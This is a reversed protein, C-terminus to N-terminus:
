GWDANPTPLRAGVRQRWDRLLAHMQRVRAPETAALNRQQGPDDGLHYLERRGDEFFEILQFDGVRVSSGPTGGQNAYHPFHWYLAERDLREGGRLLPALSVGDVHQEPRLPLGALDLLTPYFDPTTVPVRCTAGAATVGPARVLLPVRTGGEYMWGKGELLPLNCTPSGESTSLGGNDSTFVIVTNEAQGTEELAALVRGINADLTAIMAAYTPDSQVLRRTVRQHRKHEAPFPEGVAFTQAESLGLARAKAQFHPLAAPKAQIPTHVEYYWLNLFFPQEDCQRILAIAEDTLRDGLYQGPPGDPLTEIGWPAFYGRHPAGLACGGVNVDFGHERPYYQPGGLHWKGVHWTRYGGARLARALSFEAHPLYPIYGPECLRGRSWGGIYHTVGVRAPYKGSMLSARSPSCVPCAAGADTFRMGGAALRDLHPTEYFPSGCCGLDRWGMDDILIFLFNPRRAPTAPATM